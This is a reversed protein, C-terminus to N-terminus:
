AFVPPQGWSKGTVYYWDGEKLDKTIITKIKEETINFLESIGLEDACDMCFGEYDVRMVKGCRICGEKQQINLEELTKRINEKYDM